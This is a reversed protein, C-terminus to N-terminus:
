PNGISILKVDFGIKVSQNGDTYSDILNWNLSSNNYEYYYVFGENGKESDGIALKDGKDNLSISCGFNSTASGNTIQSGLEEWDNISENFKYVQVFNAGSGEYNAAVALIKGDAYKCVGIPCNHLHIPIRLLIILNLSLLRIEGPINCYNM